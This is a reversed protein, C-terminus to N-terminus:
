VREYMHEPMHRDDYFGVLYRFVSAMDERSWGGMQCVKLIDWKLVTHTYQCGGRRFSHTGYLYFPRGIDKLADWM